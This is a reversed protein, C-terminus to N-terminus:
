VLNKPFRIVVGKEDSTDSGLIFDADLPKIRFLNGKESLTQMSDLIKHYERFEADFVILSNEVELVESTLFDFPKGIQEELKKKLDQNDSVLYYNKVEKEGEKIGKPMKRSKWKALTVGLSVIKEFLFNPNYHKRYFIQMAGYFRDFYTEDKKTSEGKYHLVVTNGLYHNKYGAKIFKYSLDIDEGYMFYDEDFGGVKEYISKEVLMFAGVLIEVEGTENQTLHEAYYKGGVGILKLLSSFPTPLNRKSEPLFKGTGDILKVGLAGIEKVSKYYKLAKLFTDESVATDPNLICIYKGRAKKVAQNNAKSFGVNESNQIFLIEPFRQQVMQRSNDPSANDIVIIEADINSIAAQVSRICQELFYCVNYNLIVVSLEM